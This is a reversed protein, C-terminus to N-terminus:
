FIIYLKQELVQVVWGLYGSIKLHKTSRLIKGIKTIRRDNHITIFDGDNKSM